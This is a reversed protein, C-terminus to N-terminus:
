SSRRLDERARLFEAVRKQFEAERQRAEAERKQLNAREAQWQDRELQFKAQEKEVATDVAYDLRGKEDRWAKLRAQYLMRVEANESLRGLKTVASALVANKKAVMDLDEESEAGIFKCWAWVASSDDAEPVKPLELTHMEMMDGFRAHDVEDILSFSHHYRGEFGGVFEFDTVVIGIVKKLKSYDDGEDLQESLMSALYYCFREYIAKTRAVQMEIDIEKGTRTRVRVDLISFKDEDRMKKLHPDLIVVDFEGDPLGIVAQLFAKLIDLSHKDGFFLKFLYDIRPRLIKEGTKRYIYDM